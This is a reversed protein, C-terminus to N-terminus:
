CDLRFFFRWGPVAALQCLQQLNHALEDEGFMEGLSAAAAEFNAPVLEHTSFGWLQAGFARALEQAGDRTYVEFFEAFVVSGPKTDGYWGPPYELCDAIQPDYPGLALIHASTSM